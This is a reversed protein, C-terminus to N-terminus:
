RTQSFLRLASSEVPGVWDLVAIFFATLKRGLFEGGEVDCPAAVCPSWNLACMRRFAIIFASRQIIFSLCFSKLEDNMTGREDNSKM